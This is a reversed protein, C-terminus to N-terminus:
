RDLFLAKSVFIVTIFEQGLLKMVISSVGIMLFLTQM